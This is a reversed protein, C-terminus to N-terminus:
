QNRAEGRENSIPSHKIHHKNDDNSILFTRRARSSHLLIEFSDKSYYIDDITEAYLRENM